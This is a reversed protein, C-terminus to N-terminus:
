APRPLHLFGRKLGILVAQTRDAADLETLIVGIHCKVTGESIGLALAIERNSNGEGLLQLVERERASLHTEGKQKTLSLAVAAPIYVGGSHVKQIAEYLTEIELGKALYGKAGRELARRIDEDGEYMTLIIIKAAPDIARIRELTEVGGIGPLHLDLLVIHPRHRAYLTQAEEGNGAHAIVAVGQCQALMAAVGMRVIPHDDVILVTISRTNARANPM